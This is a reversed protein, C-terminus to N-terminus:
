YKLFYFLLSHFRTGNSKIIQTGNGKDERTREGVRKKRGVGNGRECM